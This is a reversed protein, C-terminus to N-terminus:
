VGLPLAVRDLEDQQRKLRDQLEQVTKDLRTEIDEKDPEDAEMRQEQQRHCQEVYEQINKFVEEDSEAAM